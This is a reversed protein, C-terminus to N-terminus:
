EPKIKWSCDKYMPDEFTPKISSFANARQGPIKCDRCMYHDGKVRWDHTYNVIDTRVRFKILKVPQENNLSHDNTFEILDELYWRPDREKGCALDIEYQKSDGESLTCTIVDKM